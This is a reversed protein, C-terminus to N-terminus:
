TNLRISKEVQLKQNSEIITGQQTKNYKNAYARLAKVYAEGALKRDAKSTLALNGITDNVDVVSWPVIGVISERDKFWTKPQEIYTYDNVRSKIKNSITSSNFVTNYPTKVKSNSRM